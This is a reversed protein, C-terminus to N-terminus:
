SRPVVENPECVPLPIAASSLIAARFDGGKADDYNGEPHLLGVVGRKGALMWGVPLFCKYLNTKVGKLDPYNQFANLFNKTATAEELEHTWEAQM